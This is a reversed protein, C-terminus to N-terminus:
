DAANDLWGLDEGNPDSSHNYVTDTRVLRCFPPLVPTEKAPFDLVWSVTLSEPDVEWLSCRKPHQWYDISYATTQERPDTGANGFRLRRVGDCKSPCDVLDSQSPLICHHTMNRPIQFVRGPGLVRKEEVSKSGWGDADGAENRMVAIVSGEPTFAWDTESGGGIHVTSQGPIMSGLGVWECQHAM